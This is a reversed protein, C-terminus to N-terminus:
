PPRVEGAIEEKLLAVATEVNRDLIAELLKQQREARSAFDIRGERLAALMFRRSQDFFQQQLAIIRVSGCAAALAAHFGRAAEDWALANFDDPSHAVTVEARRLKHHAAVIGGEWDADGKDLSWALALGEVETRVRLIDNLDEETASAVRFGRQAIAEVLGEGSLIRMAERISNNSGGYRARIDELKLKADPPLVGFSIDRRLSNAVLAVVTEQDRESERWSFIM